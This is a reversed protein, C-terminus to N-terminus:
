VVAQTYSQQETDSSFSPSLQQWTSTSIVDYDLRPTNKSVVTQTRVEAPSNLAVSARGSSVVGGESKQNGLPARLECHGQQVTGSVIGWSGHGWVLGRPQGCYLHALGLGALYGDDAHRVAQWLVL